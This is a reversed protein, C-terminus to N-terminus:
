GREIEKALTESLQVAMQEIRQTIDAENIEAQADSILPQIGCRTIFRQYSATYAQPPQM